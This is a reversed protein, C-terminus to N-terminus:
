DAAAALAVTDVTGTTTGAKACVVTGINESETYSIPVFFDDGICVLARKLFADKLASTKFQTRCKSDVYAKNDAAPKAYIILAAVNKDKAQDFIKDMNKKEEYFITAM